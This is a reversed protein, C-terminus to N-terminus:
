DLAAKAELLAARHAPDAYKLMLDLIGAPGKEVWAAIREPENGTDVALWLAVPLAGWKEAFPGASLNQRLARVEAVDHTRALGSLREALRPELRELASRARASLAHEPTIWKDSLELSRMMGLGEYYLEAVAGHLSPESMAARATTQGHWPHARMWAKTLLHTYEHSLVRLVRERNGADAAAGYVRNLDSLDACITDLDLTFGDNGGQNGALLRVSEPPTVGPFARDLRGRQWDAAMERILDLWAQEALSPPKATAAIARYAEASIRPELARMWAATPKGSEDLALEIRIDEAQIPAAWSLVLGAALILEAKFHIM